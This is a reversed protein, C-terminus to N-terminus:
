KVEITSGPALAGCSSDIFRETRKAETFSEGKLPGSPFAETARLAGHMAERHDIAITIQMIVVYPQGKMVSPCSQSTTFLKTSEERKTMTCGANPRGWASEAARFPTDAADASWCSREKKIVPLIEPVGKSRMLEALAPSNTRTIVTTSEWLGAKIKSVQASLYSSSSILGAVGFAAARNRLSKKM